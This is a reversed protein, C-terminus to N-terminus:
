GEMLGLMELYRSVSRQSRPILLAAPSFSVLISFIRICVDSLFFSPPAADRQAEAFVVSEPLEQERQSGCDKVPQRTVDRRCAALLM